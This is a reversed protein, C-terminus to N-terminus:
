SNPLATSIDAPLKRLCSYINEASTQEQRAIKCCDQRPCFPWSCNYTEQAGKWSSWHVRDWQSSICLCWPHNIERNFQRLRWRESNIPAFGSQNGRPCHELFVYASTCLFTIFLGCFSLLWSLCSLLIRINVHVFVILVALSARSSCHSSRCSVAKELMAEVVVFFVYICYCTKDCVTHM